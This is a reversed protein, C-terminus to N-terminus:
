EARGPAGEGSEDQEVRARADRAEEVVHEVAPDLLSTVELVALGVAGAPARHERYYIWGRGEAWLALRHLGFLVSAALAMRLLWWM